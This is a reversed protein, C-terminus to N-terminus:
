TRMRENIRSKAEKDEQAIKKMMELLAPLLVQTLYNVKTSLLINVDSRLRDVQSSAESKLEILKEKSIPGEFKDWLNIGEAKLKKLLSSAEESLQKADAPMKTIASSLDLLDHIQSRLKQGEELHRNIKGHIEEEKAVGLKLIEFALNPLTTDFKEKTLIENSSELKEKAEELMEIREQLDQEPLSVRGKLSKVSELNTEINPLAIQHIKADQPSLQTQDVLAFPTSDIENFDSIESITM